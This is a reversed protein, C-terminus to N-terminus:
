KKKKKKVKGKRPTAPREDTATAAIQERVDEGGSDEGECESEGHLSIDSENESIEGEVENDAM